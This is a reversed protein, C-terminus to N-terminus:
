DPIILSNNRTKTRYFRKSPINFYNQNTKHSSNLYLQKKLLNCNMDFYSNALIGTSIHYKTM